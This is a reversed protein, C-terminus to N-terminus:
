RKLLLQRSSTNWSTFTQKHAYDSLSGHVSHRLFNRVGANNEFLELL